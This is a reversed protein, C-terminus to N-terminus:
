AQNSALNVDSDIREQKSIEIDATNKMMTAMLNSAAMSTEADNKKSESDYTLRATKANSVAVDIDAANKLRTAQLNLNAIDVDSNNKRNTFLWGEWSVVVVLFPIVMDKVIQRWSQSDSTPTSSKRM